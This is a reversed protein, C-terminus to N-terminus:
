KIVREEGWVAEADEGYFRTGEGYYPYAGVNDGGDVLPVADEEDACDCRCYPEHGRPLDCGHSGWYVRCGQWGEPRVAAGLDMMVADSVAFVEWDGSM